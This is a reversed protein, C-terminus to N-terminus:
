QTTTGTTARTPAMGILGCPAPTISNKATSSVRRWPTVMPWAKANVMDIRSTCIM